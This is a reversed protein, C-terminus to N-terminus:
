EFLFKGAIYLAKLPTDAERLQRKLDANDSDTVAPLEFVKLKVNFLLDSGADGEPPTFINDIVLRDKQEAAEPDYILGHELAIRKVAETFVQADTKNRQNTMTSIEDVTFTDLLLRYAPDELDVKMIHFFEEGDTPKWTAEILQRENSIFRAHTFKGDTLM